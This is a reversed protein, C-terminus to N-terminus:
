ADAMAADMDGARLYVDGRVHLVRVVAAIKMGRGDFFEIIKTLEAIAEPYHGHEADVRAQLQMILTAPVSDAPGSKGVESAVAALDEEARAVNSMQLYTIGRNAFA